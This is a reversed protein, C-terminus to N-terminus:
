NKGKVCVPGCEIDEEPTRDENIKPLEDLFMREGKYRVLRCGIARSQLARKEFVEPFHRRVKYWYVASTAKVCGLCNNNKFGLSYMVPPSIGDEALYDHCDQKTIGANRLNWELILHPNNKEFLDIRSQEDATLGFIHLDNPEEYNFRPIKKMETTCPAGRIGSMYKRNDFVDDITAFKRSSIIEIPKHIWKEVDHLFRLNDPHESALTNCYVVRLNARTMSALKAACASAAGCSFWVIVRGDASDKLWSKM